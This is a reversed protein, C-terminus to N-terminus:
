TSSDITDKAPLYSRRATPLLLLIIVAVALLMRALNEILVLPSFIRILGPIALLFMLAALVIALIAGWRKSGFLGITAVAALVLLIINLGIMLPRILRFLRTFGTGITRNPTFNPTIGPNNPDNNEGNNQFGNSPFGNPPTFNRNRFQGPALLGNGFGGGLIGAQRAIGLGGVFLSLVIMLIAAITVAVPRQTKM